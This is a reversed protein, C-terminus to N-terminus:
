REDISKEVLKGVNISGIENGVLLKNTSLHFPGLSIEAM